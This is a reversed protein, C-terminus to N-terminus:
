LIWVSIVINNPQVLQSSQSTCGSGSLFATGAAKKNQIRTTRKTRKRQVETFEHNDNDDDEGNVGYCGDAIGTIDDTSMVRKM